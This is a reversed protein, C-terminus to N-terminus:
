NSFFEFYSSRGVVVYDTEVLDKLNQSAEVEINAPAEFGTSDHYKNSIRLRSKPIYRFGYINTFLSTCILFKVVRLSVEKLKFM